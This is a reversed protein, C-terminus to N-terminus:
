ELVEDKFSNDPSINFEFLKMEGQYEYDHGAAVIYLDGAKVEHSVGDLIFTGHGEVVYYNRTTDIMRKKPHRGKVTILLTNYGVNSGDPIYVQGSFGGANFNKTDELSIKGTIDNM